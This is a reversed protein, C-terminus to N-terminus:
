QSKEQINDHHKLTYPADTAISLGHSNIIDELTKGM